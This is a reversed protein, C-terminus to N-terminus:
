LLGDRAVERDVMHAKLTALRYDSAGGRGWERRQACSLLPKRDCPASSKGWVIDASALCRALSSRYDAWVAHEFRIAM